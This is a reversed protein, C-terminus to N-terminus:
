DALSSYVDLLHQEEVSWQYREVARRTALRYPEPDALLKHAAAALANPDIPDCVEGVGTEQVIRGIEPSDSGIVPVGAAIYEFLKNPLTTFYSLSSNVINCLGVDASATYELLERNPVPGFFYVKHTLGRKRVSEELAPRLYGYGIIVLVVGDLQQVAEIAPEIGRNEQISGQYVVIPTGAPLSLKTRLDRAEITEEVEPVNLVIKSVTPVFGHKDRIRDIWSPGAVILADASPLWKRENWTAWAKWGRGMRNRETALEHSDYVLRAGTKQKCVHGIYLTNLDHCHFVDAGTSLGVAIMRRNIAWTKLARGQKGLLFRLVRLGFRAGEFMSRLVASSVRGWLQVAANPQRPTPSHDFEMRAVDGPTATPEPMVAALNRARQEDVAEGTLRSRRVETKTSWRAAVRNLTGVGFQRRSVRIVEIGDSTTEHEATVEPVNIAVVTVDHGRTVLTKAEKTVRADYEFSNKVFM